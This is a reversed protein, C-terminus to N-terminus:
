IIIINNIFKLSAEEAEIPLRKGPHEDAPNRTINKKTVGNVAHLL